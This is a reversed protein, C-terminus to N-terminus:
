ERSSAQLFAFDNALASRHTKVKTVNVRLFRLVGEVAEGATAAAAEGSEEGSEELHRYARKFDRTRRAYKRVRSLPLVEESLSKVVNDHLHAPDCDNTRRFHMKSMGWSYEVGVGAIECHSKPSCILIHGRDHVLKKIYTFETRFDRCAGLRAAIEPGVAGPRLMGREWLVQRSGKAEGLYGQRFATDGDGTDVLQFPWSEFQPPACEPTFAFHQTDGPRLTWDKGEADVAPWRRLPPHALDEVALVSGMGPRPITQAGGLGVNM